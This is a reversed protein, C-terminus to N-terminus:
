CGCSTIYGSKQVMLRLLGVDFMRLREAGLYWGKICGGGGAQLMESM